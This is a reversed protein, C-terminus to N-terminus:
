QSGMSGILPVAVCTLVDEAYNRYGKSRDQHWKLDMWGGRGMTCPWSWRSRSQRGYRLRSPRGRYFEVFDTAEQRQATGEGEGFAVFRAM